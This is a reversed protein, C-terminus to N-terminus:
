GGGFAFVVEVKDGNKLPLGPDMQVENIYYLASVNFINRLDRGTAGDKLELPYSKGLMNVEVKM